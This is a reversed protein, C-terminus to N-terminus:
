GTPPLPPKRARWNAVAVECASKGINGDVPEGLAATLSQFLPLATDKTIRKRPLWKALLDVCVKALDHQDIDTPHKGKENPLEKVTEECAEALGTFFDVADGEDTDLADWEISTRQLRFATSRDLKRALESAKRMTGALSNLTRVLDGRKRQPKRAWDWHRRGFYSWTLARIIDAKAKERQNSKKPVLIDIADGLGDKRIEDGEIEALLDRKM